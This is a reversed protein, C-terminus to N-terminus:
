QLTNRNIPFLTTEEISNAGFVFQILRNIGLNVWCHTRGLSGLKQIYDDLVSIDKDRNLALLNKLYESNAVQTKLTTVDVEFQGGAGLEGAYPVIM